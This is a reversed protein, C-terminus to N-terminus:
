RGYVTDSWLSLFCKKGQLNFGEYRGVLPRLTSTMQLTVVIFIIAWVGIVSSLRDGLYGFARWLLSIGFYLGIGWFALHMVGMFAVTETSQAFIWTVPAFGVLLVANLTLMLLMLGLVDHFSLRSGGLCAFIYLSPLCIAATVFTGCAVKVPVAWLQHGGSFAGMMFGYLLMCLATALSLTWQVQRRRGRTLEYALRAPRKLLADVIAFPAGSDMPRYEDAFERAQVHESSNLVHAYRASRLREATLPPPITGSHQPEPPPTWEDSPPTDNM